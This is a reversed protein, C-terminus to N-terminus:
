LLNRLIIDQFTHVGTLDDHKVFWRLLYLVGQVFVQRDYVRHAVEVSDYEGIFSVIHEGVCQGSRSSLVEISSGNSVCRPGGVSLAYHEGYIQEKADRIQQLLSRATGSIPDEKNRHHTELIRIDYSQDLMRAISGVLIQQVVSGLSLNPALIVLAKSGIQFIQDWFTDDYHDWGSTALIVPRPNESLTQVVCPTFHGSAVDVILDNNRVVDVLSIDGQRSFSNGLRFESSDQLAYALLKGLRGTVGIIGVSLSHM